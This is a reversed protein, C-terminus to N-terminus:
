EEDNEAEVLKLDRKGGCIFCSGFSDEATWFERGCDRCQVKENNIVEVTEAITRTVCAGLIEMLHFVIDHDLEDKFGLEKLVKKKLLEESLIFLSSTKTLNQFTMEKLNELQWEEIDHNTYRHVTLGVEHGCYECGPYIELVYTLGDPGPM